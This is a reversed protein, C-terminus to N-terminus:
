KRLRDIGQLSRDDPDLAKYIQRIENIENKNRKEWEIHKQVVERTAVRGDGNSHGWMEDRTPMGEQVKEELSKVKSYLENKEADSLIKPAERKVHTMTPGPVIQPVTSPVENAINSVLSYANDRTINTFQIEEAM